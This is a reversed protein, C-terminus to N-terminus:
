TFIMVDKWGKLQAQYSKYVSDYYGLKKAQFKGNRPLKTMTCNSELITHMKEGCM